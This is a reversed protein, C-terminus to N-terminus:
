SIVHRPSMQSEDNREEASAAVAFLLAIVLISAIRM